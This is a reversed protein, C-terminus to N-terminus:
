RVWFASPFYLIYDNLKTNLWDRIESDAKGNKQQQMVYGIM